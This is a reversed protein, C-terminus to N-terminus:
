KYVLALHEQLICLQKHVDLSLNSYDETIQEQSKTALFLTKESIKILLDITQQDIGENKSFWRLICNRSLSALPEKLQINSNILRLIQRQLNIRNQFDLM